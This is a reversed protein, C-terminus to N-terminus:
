GGGGERNYKGLGKRSGSRATLFGECNCKLDEILLYQHLGHTDYLVLNTIAWEISNGSSGCVM